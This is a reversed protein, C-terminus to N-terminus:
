SNYATTADGLELITTEQEAHRVFYVTKSKAASSDAIRIDSDAIGRLHMGKADVTEFATTSLVTALVLPLYKTTM